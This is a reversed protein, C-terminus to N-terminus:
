RAPGRRAAEVLMEELQDVGAQHSMRSLYCERARHAMDARDVPPIKAAQLFRDALTRWDQPPCALGVGSGEVLAAADGPVSVLVPSGCALATPLKSPITAHFIPLNQLTVLQFDAAAYLAPMDATPRRGLFRVNDAGLQATLARADAEAIGSGVLVLDIEETRAVAAAARVSDGINQFPGMTGAYM